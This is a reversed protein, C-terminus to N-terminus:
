ASEPLKFVRVSEVLGQVHLFMNETQAGQEKLEQETATTSEQLKVAQSRLDENIALQSKSRDSIQSVASVLEDTSRRTLRMRKGANEALTSGEVVQEITKNMRAMTESAESQISQVLNAIQDTSERATEALRQVEDAVVSFGRGAEGPS